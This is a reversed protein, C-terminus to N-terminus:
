LQVLQRQALQATITRKEGTKFRLLFSGETGDSPDIQFVAGVTTDAPMILQEGGFITKNTFHLLRNRNQSSRVGIQYRTSPIRFSDESSLKSKDCCIYHQEGSETCSINNQPTAIVTIERQVTLTANQEGTLLLVIFISQRRGLYGERTQYCYEVVVVDGENCDSTFNSLIHVTDDDTEVLESTNFNQSANRHDFFGDNEKQCEFLPSM